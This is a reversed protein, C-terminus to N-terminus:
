FLLHLQYLTNLWSELGGESDICSETKQPQPLHFEGMPLQLAGNNIWAEAGSTIPESDMFSRLQAGFHCEMALKKVRGHWASVSEDEKKKEKFFSQKEWFCRIAFIKTLCHLRYIGTAFSGQFGTHTSVKM